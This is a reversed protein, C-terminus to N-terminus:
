CPLNMADVMDQLKEPKYDLSVGVVELGREHLKQYLKKLAPLEAVCPGCWTAWCDIIVVKGKMDQSRIPRGATDKLSFTYLEGLAPRPPIDIAMEKAKAVAAERREIRGRETIQEVGIRAVQARPSVAADLRHHFLAIGDSSAGEGARLDFRNGTKDLAVVRLESSGEPFALSVLLAGNDDDMLAIMGQTAWVSAQGSMPAVRWTWGRAPPPQSKDDAAPQPVTAAPRGNGTAEIVATVTGVLTLLLLGIVMAVKIKAICMATVTGKALGGIGVPAGALGGIGVHVTSKALQAPLNVNENLLQVVLAASISGSAGAKTMAAALMQRARALWTSITGAPTGLTLAAQDKTMGQFYCLVIVKRYRRPLHNIERDLLQRAESLAAQQFPDPASTTLTAAAQMTTERRGIRWRAARARLGVRYAVGYLWNALLERRGISAARHALVLFVSQFADDVDGGDHLMRQCVGLVMPGHRRVLQEFADSARTRVFEGLLRADTSAEATLPPPADAALLNM